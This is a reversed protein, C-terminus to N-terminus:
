GEKICIYKAIEGLIGLDSYGVIYISWVIGKNCKFKSSFKRM